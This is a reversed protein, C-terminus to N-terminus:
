DRGVVFRVRNKSEPHVTMDPELGLDFEIRKVDSAKMIALVWKMFDELKM